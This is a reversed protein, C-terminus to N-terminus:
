FSALTVTWDWAQMTQGRGVWREREERQQARKAGTVRAEVTERFSIGCSNGRETVWSRPTNARVGAIDGSVAPAGGESLRDMSVQRVTCGM